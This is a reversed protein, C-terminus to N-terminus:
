DESRNLHYYYSKIKEDHDLLLGTKIHDEIEIFDCVINEVVSREDFCSKKMTEDVEDMNATTFIEDKELDYKFDDRWYYKIISFKMSKLFEGIKFEENEDFLSPINDKYINMVNVLIENFYKSFYVINDSDAKKKSYISLFLKTFDNINEIKIRDEMDFKVVKEM